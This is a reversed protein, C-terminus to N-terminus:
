SSSGAVEQEAARQMAFAHLSAASAFAERGAEHPQIKVGLRKEIAVVLELADVSDLGLGDGFLPDDDGIMEPTVGELQLSDIILQKFEDLTM